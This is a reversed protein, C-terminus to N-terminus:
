QGFLRRKMEEFTETVKAKAKETESQIVKKQVLYFVTGGAVVFRVERGGLLFYVAGGILFRNTWKQLLEPEKAEIRQAALADLPTM